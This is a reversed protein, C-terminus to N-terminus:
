CCAKHWLSNAQALLQRDQLFENALRVTISPFKPNEVNNRKSYIVWVGLPVTPWPTLCHKCGNVWKFLDLDVEVCYTIKKQLPYM